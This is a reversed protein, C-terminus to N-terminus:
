GLSKASPSHDDHSGYGACGDRSKETFGLLTSHHDHSGLRSRPALHPAVHFSSCRQEDSYLQPAAQGPYSCALPNNSSFTYGGLHPYSGFDMQRPLNTHYDLGQSGPLPRYSATAEHSTWGTPDGVLGFSGDELPMVNEKGGAHASAYSHFPHSLSAPGTPLDPSLLPYGANLFAFNDAQRLHYSDRASYSTSVESLGSRAMKAPKQDAPGDGDEFIRLDRKKGQTGFTLRWEADEDAWSGNPLGDRPGFSAPETHGVAATRHGPQTELTPGPKVGTRTKVHSTAPVNYRIGHINSNGLVGMQSAEQSSRSTGTSPKGPSDELLRSIPREQQLDGDNGFMQETAEVLTSSIELQMALSDDKKQNRKRKMEPTASDFIDMGPWCVGKLQVDGGGHTMTEPSKGDVDDGLSSTYSSVSTHSPYVVFPDDALDGFAAHFDSLGGDSPATSGPGTAELVEESSLRAPVSWMHMRPVPIHARREGAPASPSDATIERKPQRAAVTAQHCAAASAAAFKRDKAHKADKKKMRQSLLKEIGHKEYWANYKALKERATVDTSTRVSIKFQNSLHGKSAVHTLLHSPDSFKPDKPCISCHLPISAIAHHAM